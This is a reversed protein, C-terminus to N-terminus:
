YFNDLFKFDMPIQFKKFFKFFQNLFPPFVNLFSGKELFALNLSTKQEVDNSKAQKEFVVHLM